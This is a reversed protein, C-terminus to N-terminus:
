QCTHASVDDDCMDRWIHDIVCLLVNSPQSGIEIEQTSFDMDIHSCVGRRSGRVCTCKHAYQRHAYALKM